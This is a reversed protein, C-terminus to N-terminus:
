LCVLMLIAYCAESGYEGKVSYRLRMCVLQTFEKVFGAELENQWPDEM